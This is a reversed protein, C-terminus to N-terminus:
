SAVCQVAEEAVPLAAERRMRVIDIFSELRTRLGAEAQSEDLVITVLPPESIARACLETVLSDPGCPFTVVFIIGDVRDRCREVAALQEINFTWYVDRSLKRAAPLADGRDVDESSIVTVGLKELYNVLPLGVTEDYLNYSHGVVLIKLGDGALRVEEERARRREDAAQARKAARYARLLRSPNHSFRWGLKLLEVFEYERRPVDVSYGILEVGEVSNAAIDYAAMLKVCAQEDKRLSEVRPVLIYDARGRLAEVHGLFVKLPLCTEDVALAIGRELIRRNSHPSLVVRCGLGEFFTAWLVGYRHYLLARPIGITAQTM